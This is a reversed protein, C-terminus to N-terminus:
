KERTPLLPAAARMEAQTKEDLLLAVLDLLEALTLGSAVGDPMLSTASREVSALDGKAVTVDRGEPSRVVLRDRTEEVKIGSYVQGARTVAVWTAFGEKVEKSPAVVAELLKSPSLSRSLGTLDPGVEGGRGALRHCRICAARAEDLFIVRGRAADGRSRVLDDFRAADESTLNEGLSAQLARERLARLDDRAASQAARAADVGSGAGESSGLAMSKAALQRDLAVIVRPLHERGIKGDLFRQAVDRTSAFDAAFLDISTAVEAPDGSELAELALPRARAFSVQGVLALVARRLQGRPLAELLQVIAGLEGDVGATLKRQAWREVPRLAGLTRVIEFREEEPRSSDQLARVLASATALLRGRAVSRLAALRLEPSEADLLKLVIETVRDGDAEGLLVLSRLAAERLAAPRGASAELWRALTSPDPPPSTQLEGYAALVKRMEEPQLDGGGPGAGLDAKLIADLVLAARPGRLAEVEGVAFTRDGSDKSCALRSLEALASLGLRELGRLIGDHLFRDVGPDKRLAEILAAAAGAREPSSQPLLSGAAGLALAASRRVAAHDDALSAKLDHLLDRLASGDAGGEARAEVERGLAEAALRRLEVDDDRLLARLEREVGADWMRCLGQVAAARGPGGLERSRAAALLERQGSEGQRVIADLARFRLGHDPSPLLGVLTVGEAGIDRAWRDLRGRPMAPAGGAGAWTIRWIRGHAQDGVGNNGTSDTRWDCVYLAGDPGVLAQCPRFLGDRTSELFTTQEVVEFTSGKRAVRFARVSKRVVDPWLLLGQVARPFRDSALIALGAPSGRGTKLLVPMRGPKEGFVSGREFDPICCSVGDALRWGYDAGELVHVLRCGQFKSGDENDNDAHFINGYDDVVVDRFPNRFGLAFLSLNSLHSGDSRLRWVAGTRMSLGRSGDAAEPFSDEDGQTLYLWGDPTFTLGSAQHEHWGALGAVRIDDSWGAGAGPVRTRRLVTGQQTLWVAGNRLAVTCPLRLDDMVPESRDFIGDGDTDILRDLRDPTPKVWRPMSRRSGDRYVVERPLIEAGSGVWRLVLLSGDDDFRMGMPNVVLPESAVVEVRLGDLSKYGALAPDQAGLDVDQAWSPTPIPASTDQLLEVPDEARMATGCALLIWLSGIGALPRRTVIATEVLRPM